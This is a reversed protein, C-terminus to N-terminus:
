SRFGAKLLKMAEKSGIYGSEEAAKARKLCYVSEIALLRQYECASILVAVGRGNKQIFAPEIQVAELYQGFKTKCDTASTKM